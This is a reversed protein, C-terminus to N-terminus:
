ESTTEDPDPAVINLSKGWDTLSVTTTITRGDVTIKEVVQVPRGRDDVAMTTPIPDLQDVISGFQDANPLSAPDVDFAYGQASVGDVQTPGTAEFNSAGKLLAAYQTLSTQEDIQDFATSLAKVVPNTSTSSVKAWPKDPDTRESAPLEVYGVGDVYIMSIASSGSGIDFSFAQTKGGEGALVDGEGSGAADADTGGGDTSLSLHVTTTRATAATLTAALDNVTRATAATGGNAGGGAAAGGAGVRSGTGSTSTTCASLAAVALVLCAGAALIRAHTAPSTV